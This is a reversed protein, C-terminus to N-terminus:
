EGSQLLTLSEFNCKDHSDNSLILRYLNTYNGDDAFIRIEYERTDTISEVTIEKKTGSFSLALSKAFARAVPECDDGRLEYAQAPPATMLALALLLSKNM